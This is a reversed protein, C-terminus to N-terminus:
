GSDPRREKGKSKKAEKMMAKLDTVCDELAGMRALVMHNLMNDAAARRTAMDMQTAFSSPIQINADMDGGLLESM